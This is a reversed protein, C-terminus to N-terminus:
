RRQRGGLCWRLSQAVGAAGTVDSSSEHLACPKMWGVYRPLIRGQYRRPLQLAENERLHTFASQGLLSRNQIRVPAERCLSM